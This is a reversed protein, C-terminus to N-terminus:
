SNLLCAASAEILIVILMGKNMRCAIGAMWVYYAKQWRSRSNFALELILCTACSRGFM